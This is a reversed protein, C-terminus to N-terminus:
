KEGTVPDWEGGCSAGEVRYYGKEQWAPSFTTGANMFKGPALCNKGCYTQIYREDEVAGTQNNVLSLRVCFGDAGKTGANTMNVAATWAEDMGGYMTSAYVPGYLHYRLDVGSHGPPAGTDTAPSSFSSGGPSSFCGAVCVLIIVLVSARLVLSNGTKM